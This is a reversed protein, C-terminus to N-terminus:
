KITCWSVHNQSRLKKARLYSWWIIDFVRVKTLCPLNKSVSDYTSALNRMTPETKLNIYYDFLIQGPNSQKWTSDVEQQYETQLMSDIMPIIAPYVTHLVKTAQSMGIGRKMLTTIVASAESVHNRIDKDNLKMLGDLDYKFIGADKTIGALEKRSPLIKSDIRAGIKSVDEIKRNPLLLDYSTYFNTQFCYCEILVFPNSIGFEVKSFLRFKM